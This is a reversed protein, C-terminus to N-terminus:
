VTKAPTVKYAKLDEVTATRVATLRCPSRLRSRLYSQLRVANAVNVANVKFVEHEEHDKIAPALNPVRVSPQSQPLSKTM